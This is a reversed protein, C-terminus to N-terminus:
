RRGIRYTVRGFVSRVTLTEPKQRFAAVIETDSWALIVAGVTTPRGGRLSTVTGTVATEAGKAYGGFGSGTITISRDVNVRSITVRPIISIVAPNSAFEDKVARLQYNGRPTDGPITVVLRGQDLILDPTLMVSSGDAASLAVQSAYWTSGALNTFSAGTLTLRVDSGARVISRDAAYVTPIIPGSRPAAAGSFGHCGWCDSDNPGADRGVHGYGADEGGVVITGLNSAKPSDAQINHLSDPGHCRECVRINLPDLIDHCLLCDLSGDLAYSTAHHLEATTRIIPEALGDNDHCYDCAGAGKGRHNLPLGTGHSTSPTVESPQYTPVYHGDNINDVIDGHCSVCDLSIAAPTNHHPSSTHCVTCDRVPTFSADHCSLCSYATDRVGDGDADPFPVLSGPPIPLGFLLHHRDGLGSGHCLRCDAEALEGFLMDVMGITQNVPPPPVDAWGAGAVCWSFIVVTAFLVPKAQM